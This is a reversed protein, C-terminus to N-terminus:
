SPSPPNQLVADLSELVVQATISTMCEHTGIPCKKGGHSSCPRCYIHTNEVVRARPNWPQYGFSQVTPGFIAVTPTGAVSAMHMAGSDNSVLVDAGAILEVMEAIKTEGTINLVAVKSAIHNSLDREDPSGILVVQDGRALLLEALEIFKSAGWRKTAWVSGPALLVIKKQPDLSLRKAL